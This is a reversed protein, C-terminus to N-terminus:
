RMYSCPKIMLDTLVHVAHITVNYMVILIPLSSFNFDTSDQYYPYSASKRALDCVHTDLNAVNTCGISM